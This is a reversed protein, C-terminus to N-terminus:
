STRSEYADLEIVKGLNCVLAYDACPDLRLLTGVAGRHGNPGDLSLGTEKGVASVGAQGWLNDERQLPLVIYVVYAKRSLFLM